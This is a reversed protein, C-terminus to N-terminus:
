QRLSIVEKKVAIAQSILLKNAKIDEIWWAKEKLQLLTTQQKTDINYKFLTHTAPDVHYIDGNKVLSSKGFINSLHQKTKDINTLDAQWIQDQKTQYILREDELWAQRIDNLGLSTLRKNSINFMYLHRGNDNATVLLEDESHWRLVNFIPKASTLEITQGTLDVLTVQDNLVYALQKGNPAWAFQEIPRNNEKATLQTALNQQWLWIQHSGSRNSIFAIADGNPQYSPYTESSTTRAFSAYPLYQQNFGIQSNSVPLDISVEALDYDFMGRVALLEDKVGSKYVDLIHREPVSVPNLEGEFSLFHPGTYTSTLLYKEGKVFNAEFHQFHSMSPLRKIKSSMIITGDLALIDIIEAAGDRSMVAFLQLVPDYDFYYIKRTDYVYLTKTSKSRDDYHMLRYRNDEWQLFAYQSNTLAKPTELLESQCEYRLQPQQPASLANAFDITAINWCRKVNTQLAQCNAQAAFTLQSGDANFSHKGYIGINETLKIEEGNLTNKAWLNGSCIDIHRNFVIYIGDNSYIPNSEHQDSQTHTTMKTYQTNARALASTANAMLKSSPWNQTVTVFLAIVFVSLLLLKRYITPNKKTDSITAPATGNAENMDVPTHANNADWKVPAVLSYGIRTQTTIVKQSKGDDGLAKRLQTICRQLANPVVEVNPWVKLMIEQHTVVEGQNEALLLLVQLMKPELSIESSTGNISNSSITSRLLDVRYSGVSFQKVRM